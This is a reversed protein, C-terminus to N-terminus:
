QFYRSFLTRWAAHGKRKIYGMVRHRGDAKSKKSWLLCKKNAQQYKKTDYLFNKTVFNTVRIVFNTV